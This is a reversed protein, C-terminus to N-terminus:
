KKGYVNYVVLFNFTTWRSGMTDAKVKLNVPGNIRETTIETSTPRDAATSGGDHKVIFNNVFPPAGKNSGDVVTMKAAASAKTYVTISVQEDAGIKHSCSGHGRLGIIESQIRKVDGPMEKKLTIDTSIATGGYDSPLQHADVADLLKKEWSKRDSIVEVKSATRPDLWGKIITWTAGFFRPGNVIFMKSMTEPFCISDIAAQEKIIALTRSNLQSLALGSLDLVCTCEFRKFSPDNKKQERLRNAFDHMMIYWHFKVIGDLTTICEVADVNLIGPKSIFLPAGNKSVGSYLQPYQAYYLSLGCGLSDEHNPYFNSKKAEARTKTAEEIMVIVDDYVFKRARLWRCLAWVEGEELGFSYITDKIDQPRKEVEAKFRAYIDAEDSTLHGPVGWLMPNSKVAEQGGGAVGQGMLKAKDWPGDDM